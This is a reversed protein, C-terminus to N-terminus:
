PANYAPNTSAGTWGKDPLTALVTVGGRELDVEVFEAQVTVGVMRSGMAALGVVAHPGLAFEGTIEGNELQLLTPEETESVVAWYVRGDGWALVDGGSLYEDTHAAVSIELNTLDVEYLDHAGCALVTEGVLDFGNPWEPLVAVHTFSPAGIESKKLEQFAAAFVVSEAVQFDLSFSPLHGLNWLTGSDPDFGWISAATGLFVPAQEWGLEDEGTDAAPEVVVMPQNEICALLLATIM